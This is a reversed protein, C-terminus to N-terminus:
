KASKSIYCIVDEWNAFPTTNEIGDVTYYAFDYYENSYLPIQPMLEQWRVEYQLWLDVFEDTQEPDLARMKMM